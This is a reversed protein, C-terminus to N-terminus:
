LLEKDKAVVKLKSGLVKQVIDEVTLATPISM